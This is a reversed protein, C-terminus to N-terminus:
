HIDGTITSLDIAKAVKLDTLNVVTIQQETTPTSIYVEILLFFLVLALETRQLPYIKM